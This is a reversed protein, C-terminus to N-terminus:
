EAAVTDIRTCWELLYAISQYHRESHTSLGVECTRSTSYGHTCHDPLQAKLGRLASANLEPTDFGKDGAFGCCQIDAPVIVEDACAQALKLLQADQGMRRTSCTIHLAMSARKRVIDLKPLLLTSLAETIDLVTLGAGFRGLMQSTCPSTDSIIPYRGDLSRERLKLELKQSSDRAQDPFGKSQFPMGCCATQAASVYTIGYGAREFLLGLVEWLSRSDPAGRAPGMASNVCSTFLVVHPAEKAQIAEPSPKAPKPLYPTWKPIAEGTINRLASSAGGMITRGVVAHVLDAGGLALRATCVARDMHNEISGAVRTALEGHRDARQKRMMEGTDIGVPCAAACLGDGACTDVAKYDYAKRFPSNAALEPSTAALSALARTAVIRQRPTLTLDRSPCGPECFGCEICKDIIADTQPLPKLAKLHITPDDSLLVGPSLVGLPDFLAKIRWMMGYAKAGWELEVFPAMNRGTGHEAKLSGGFKVAILQTVDDTLRAYRDIEAQTNFSQPFVFHLNGDLAHGFIIADFYNYADFLARLGAAADALHVIPVAVDEVIVTTGVPRTGGVSPLLGKRVNWYNSYTAPDTSFVVPELTQYAAIAVKVVAADADLGADDEARLDILLAATGPALDAFSAPIGPKGVVSKLSAFDMVEVASVPATKLEIAAACAEGMTSFLVLAAAKRKPEPVTELVVESIFGLTGESGVILHTLIDFGDAFDTLANLTYGTTNKIAYKREIMAALEADERTARGLEELGALLDAHSVAFAARSAADGTDLMTGDALIVRMSRLTRYTNQETGCCMGSSNNATIGGIMAAGISAPDPGIKRHFRALRANVHGGVLAPGLRVAKADELSEFQRWGNRGLKVLVSDTVAQGSLSTGAARFTIPVGFRSSARCVAMVEAEDEVLLVVKPTLQYFSADAGHTVRSFEDQLIRSAPMHQGIENLFAGLKEASHDM